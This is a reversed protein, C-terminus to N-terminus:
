ANPSCRPAPRGVLLRQEEERGHLQAEEERHEDAREGGGRADAGVQVVREAAGELDRRRALLEEEDAVDDAAREVAAVVLGHRRRGHESPVVRAAEVPPWAVIPSVGNALATRTSLDTNEAGEAASLQLLNKPMGSLTDMPAYTNM